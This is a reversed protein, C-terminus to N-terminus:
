IIIFNFKCKQHATTIAIFPRSNLLIKKITFTLRMKHPKSKNIEAYASFNM